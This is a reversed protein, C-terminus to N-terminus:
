QLGRKLFDFANEEGPAIKMEVTKGDADVSIFSNGRAIVQIPSRPCKTGAACDAIVPGRALYADDPLRIERNKVRIVTGKTEPGSLKGVKGPKNHALFEKEREANWAAFQEPSSDKTPRSLQKMPYPPMTWPDPPLPYRSSTPDPNVLSKPTPTPTVAQAPLVQQEPTISETPAPPLTPRCAAIVLLALPLLLLLKKFM